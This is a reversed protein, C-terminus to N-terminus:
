ACTSGCSPPATGQCPDLVYQYPKCKLESEAWLCKYKRKCCVRDGTGEFCSAGNVVLLCSKGNNGPNAMFDPQNNCAPGDQYGYCNPPAPSFCSSSVACCKDPTGSQGGYLRQCEDQTLTRGDATVKASISSLLVLGATIWLSGLIMKRVM